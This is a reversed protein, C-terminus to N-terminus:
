LLTARPLPFAWATASPKLLARDEMKSAFIVVPKVAIMKNTNPDPGILPKAVVKNIPITVEKNVAM